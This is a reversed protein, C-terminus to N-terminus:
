PLTPGGAELWAPWGDSLVVAYGPREMSLVEALRAAAGCEPGDCYVVLLQGYPLLAAAKPGDDPSLSVAGPIHGAEYRESERADVFIAEGRASLELATAVEVEKVRVPARYPTLLALKPGFLQVQALSLSTALVVMAVAGLLM